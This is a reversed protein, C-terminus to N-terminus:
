VFWRDRTFKDLLAPVPTVGLGPATLAPARGGETIRVPPETVDQELLFDGYSGELWRVPACRTAYHRGAASLVGTEGVQAGLQCALGARTAIEHVRRSGLLGGCKSIRVNFVDCARRRVLAEADSASCLSEDAVVPVLGAATVAAMGDLDRAPVPQEVGELRFERLAELQRIAEAASWACNADIRLGVADGLVARAASLLKRNEDLSAGVKVKVEAAGFASMFRAMREVTGPDMSAIVGSYRVEGARVPGLVDGASVGFRRGALDLLALEAGCFAALAGAAPGDLLGELAEALEPLDAFRRGVLGPLISERLAASASEITEGTVYARPCSEGWGLRGDEDRAAVLLNRAVERSALAHQVSFRLPIEVIRVEFGAVRM